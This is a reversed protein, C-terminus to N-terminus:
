IMTFSAETLDNASVNNLIALTEDEFSIVAQNANETISLQTFTLGNALGIFDQDSQFDVIKDTGEGIALVFIDSGSCDSVNDGFLIDNTQCIAQSKSM